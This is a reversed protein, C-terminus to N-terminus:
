RPEGLLLAAAACDEAFLGLSKFLTIQGDDTRGAIRGAMVEGIEGRVHGADILGASLAHLLEGAAHAAQARQDVFVRSRVVADGDVEREHPTSGGVVNLHQGARLWAGQVFPRAAGTLTCVVDAQAVADQVTDVVRVPVPCHDLLRAAFAKASAPDRGWVVLERTAPDQGFAQAHAQALGGTGLLAVSRPGQRALAQTAAVTVAATRLNTLSGADVIARLSGAEQDFLLFVGARRHTGGPGATDKRVFRGIVKAGAWPADLLAGPMLALGAGGPLAAITRPPQEVRGASVAILVDRMAEVCAAAQLRARVAAADFYHLGDGLRVPGHNM